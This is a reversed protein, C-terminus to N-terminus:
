LGYKKIKYQLSQRKIKLLDAAQSINGKTEELANHILKREIKELTTNLPQNFVIDYSINQYRQNQLRQELYHPLHQPYIWQDTSVHTGGILNFAGEIIHQLERINGPWQYNYFKKMVPESLGKIQKKFKRNYYKIFHNVLGELDENIRERLPPIRILVVSLRYFLDERIQHEILAKEPLINSTAIIRVDIEKEKSGGIRRVRGDQLVRLLKAQLDISMSNIEDLLLTGGNAQEFLGARSVAGTFSGKETGFLLGELLDKPLAACNQAIFPKNRRSNANHISQAFVEKGTGTEGYILIPSSTESAKKAYEIAKCLDINNGIIQDFSYRTGQALPPVTIKQEQHLQDQLLSIKNVLNQLQTIDRSIELAGMSQDDLQVPITKNITTIKQGKKNIFTQQREEIPKGTRLTRILTSTEETLSPYIEFIHKGLVEEPDFGDIIAGRHNYFITKGEHDVVHIGEDISNLITELLEHHTSSMLDGEESSEINM